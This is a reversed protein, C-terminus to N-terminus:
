RAGGTLRGVLRAAEQHAAQAMARALMAPPPGHSFAAAVAYITRLSARPGPEIVFIPDWRPPRFKSKFFELGQFDYFRRGHARAWALLARLWLPESATDPPGLRALPALGLTLYTAGSEALERAACDIMLEATGNPARPRRVVQELLWGQRAPVPTAVVFGQVRGQREAVFLRRDALRGLTDSEILFHLAPLGRHSLWEALCESLATHGQAGASSWERVSVGKNRARNLQARVSSLSNVRPRWEQPDWVPQSGLRVLARDGRGRLLAELRGEAGFWCVRESEAAAAAEFQRVTAELREPACVPAGAAVRVGVRTVFGVVAEDGPSFWLEFGPNLIQYSTSNWGFHLVLRRARLWESGHGANAPHGDRDGLM